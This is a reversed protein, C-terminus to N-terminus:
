DSETHWNKRCRCWISTIMIFIIASTMLFGTAMGLAAYHKGLLWTFFGVMVGFLVSVFALPEKKHARLYTSMPCSAANIVFAMLFLGTPLPALLRDAYFHESYNLAFVLLWVMAAGMMAIGTVIVTLRWFLRDMEAYRKQAAMMGLLPVRPAVWAGGLSSVTSALAWTLGMQGAIAPGHYHFLIPTFLSFAFYGSIWTLAIRWQFPLIDMWWDLCPGKPKTTLLTKIFEWYKSRLFVFAYVLSAATVISATWLNAGRIISNWAALSTFLGLFLRYFYVNSVQNCGELLSWIPITFLNIGTLVCLFIWPLKWNINQSPSQSFFIYGGVSLGVIALFAVIAYWKMAIQALSTLRSLSDADGVIERKGGMGLNAWEHSAFQTIALGIGLEAFMQLALISKFTFYFGQVTPTFKSAILIATVPGAALGWIRALIAYLVARDVEVRRALLRFRTKFDVFLAQTGTIM